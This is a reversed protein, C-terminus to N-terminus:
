IRNWGDETLNWRLILAAEDDRLRARLTGGDSASYPRVWHRPVWGESVARTIMRNVRQRTAGAHRPRGYRQGGRARGGPLTGKTVMWLHETMGVYVVHVVQEGPRELTFAYLGPADPVEGLTDWNTAAGGGVEVTEELRLDLPLFGREALVAPDVARGLPLEAADVVSPDFSPARAPAVSPASAPASASGLLAGVRRDTLIAYLYSPGQLDQLRGPGDLPRRLSAQEFHSRPIQRNTTDPVVAAGHVVYTFPKGTKQHFRQGQAAVIRAWIAAFDGPGAESAM